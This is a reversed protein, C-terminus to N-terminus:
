VLGNRWDLLSAAEDRSITANDLMLAVLQDFNALTYYPVHQTEFAVRAKDLGYSFIAVVGIVDAGTAEIAKVTEIVSGATSILDEVVIVKDKAQVTGEIQNQKGHKKASGRVYSMPLDLADSLWAAHPIGATACGSIHTPLLGEAELKELFGQTILARVKPYSMTLRNDCYIPSKIGSTWTFSRDPKIQVAEIALLNELLTKTLTM